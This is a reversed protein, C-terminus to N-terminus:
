AASIILRKIVSSFLLLFICKVMPFFSIPIIKNQMSRFWKHNSQVSYNPDSEELSSLFASTRIMENSPLSMNLMLTAFLFVFGM